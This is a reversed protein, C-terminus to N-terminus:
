STIKQLKDLADNPGLLILIDSDKLVFQGTPVLNLRNPVLEKIAIVQIGYQNILNLSKLSKGIFNKPPTFEVISYGEIFPLYELINPSHLREALSAAQDKEPFFVESAGVKYLLRSHIESIAKAVVQRVGIDKLNLTTLVSAEVSGICVIASDVKKVGLSELVKRDTADAVVVQSVRDKISQVIDRNNDIALVEHGKKYLNTALYYGFNGLGIVVFQKM